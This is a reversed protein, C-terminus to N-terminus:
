CHWYLALIINEFFFYAAFTSRRYAVYTNTGSKLLEKQHKTTCLCCFVNGMIGNSGLGVYIWSAVRVCAYLCAHALPGFKGRVQPWPARRQYVGLIRAQVRQTLVWNGLWFEQLHYGLYTDPHTLLPSQGRTAEAVHRTSAPTM